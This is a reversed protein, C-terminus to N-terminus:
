AYMYVFESSCNFNAASGYYIIKGTASEAWISGNVTSGDSMKFVSGIGIYIPKYDGLNSVLVDGDALSTLKLAVYILNGQKVIQSNQAVKEGLTFDSTINRATIQRSLTSVTGSLTDFDAQKPGPALFVKEM